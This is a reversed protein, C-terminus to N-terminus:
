RSSYGEAAGDDVYDVLRPAVVIEFLGALIVESVVTSLVGLAVGGGVLAVGVTRLESVTARDTM